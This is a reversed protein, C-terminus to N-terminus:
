TFQAVVVVPTAPDVVVVEIAGVVVGVVVVIGPFM